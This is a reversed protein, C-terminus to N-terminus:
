NMAAQLLFNSLFGFCTSVFHQRDFYSCISDPLTRRFWRVLRCTLDLRHFKAPDGIPSSHEQWACRPEAKASVKPPSSAVRPEMEASRFLPEDELPPMLLASQHCTIGSSNYVTSQHETDEQVYISPLITGVLWHEWPCSSAAQQKDGQTYTQFSTTNFHLDQLHNLRTRHV